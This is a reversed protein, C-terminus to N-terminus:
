RQVEVAIPAETLDALQQFSETHMVLDDRQNPPALVTVCTISRGNDLNTVTVTRGSEITRVLCSRIGPVTSRYTADLLVPAIAPQAPIAVEAIEDEELPVPGNMFIPDDDPPEIPPLQSQNAVETDVVVTNSQDPLPNIVDGEAAPAASTDDDGNALRGYLLFAPIALLTLLGALFLRRRDTDHM